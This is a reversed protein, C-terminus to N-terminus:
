LFTRFTEQFAMLALDSFQRNDVFYVYLRNSFIYVARRMKETIAANLSMEFHESVKHLYRKRSSEQRVM